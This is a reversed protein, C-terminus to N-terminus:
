VFIITRKILIVLDINPQAENGDIHLRRILYLGVYYSPPELDNEASSAAFRPPQALWIYSASALRKPAEKQNGIIFRAPPAV